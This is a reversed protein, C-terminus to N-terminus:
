CFERWIETAKPDGAKYPKWWRMRTRIAAGYPESAAIALPKRLAAPMGTIDPPGNPIRSSHGFHGGRGTHGRLLKGAVLAAGGVGTGLTLMFVDDFGQAAGLWAEGLLAAHADNLVPIPSSWGLYERWDLGELGQLRGPMCAISRRDRAALGPASLGIRPKLPETVSRAAVVDQVGSTLRRITEAWQM